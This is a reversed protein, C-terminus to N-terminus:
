GAATGDRVGVEVQDGVHHGGAPRRVSQARVVVVDESQAAARDRHGLDRRQGAQRQRDGLDQQGVQEAPPGDVGAGRDGHEVARPGTCVQQLLHQIGEVFESRGPPRFSSIAPPKPTPLVVITPVPESITGSVVSAVMVSALRPTSSTANVPPLVVVVTARSKPRILMASSYTSKRNPIGPWSRNQNMHSWSQMPASPTITSTSVRRM